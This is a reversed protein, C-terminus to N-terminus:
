QVCILTWCIGATYLPLIIAPDLSEKMAAWGMLAGWNITLGLYAQPWYTLRKMLPYSFVLLLSSAGFVRSYNNLQHLIPLGLLLQFGLFGVGQTPTLVGSALPRSKTREVKKDIDRDLLDNITCAVGRILASWCAFLALMRMDPLEGPMAAMAVSWFCPWAFLWTGIPKDIRALM